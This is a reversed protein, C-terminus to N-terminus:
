TGTPSQCSPGSFPKLSSSLSQHSRIPFLNPPQPPCIGPPLPLLINPLIPNCTPFDPQPPLCSATTLSLLGDFAPSCLHVCTCLPDPSQHPPCLLGAAKPGPDKEKSNRPHDTSGSLGNTVSTPECPAPSATVAEALRRADM